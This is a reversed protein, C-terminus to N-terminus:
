LGGLMPFLSKSLFLAILLLVSYLITSTLLTKGMLVNRTTDDFGNRIGNLFYTLIMVVEIMYIGVILQFITPSMVEGINILGLSDNFKMTGGHIFTGGVNFSEEVKVLFESLKQLMEIIFTAMSAVIACMFPAIFVAQLQIASSIDELIKKMMSEINKTKSLFNSISRTASSLIESSKKSASIIIKMIDNILKSPFRRIAGYKRDFVAGELTMGLNKMNRLLDVFFGYMPSSDMKSQKYKQAVEELATEVPIGSSLVDSLNFLGVQFEDELMKIENRIKLRQYSMGFFYIILSSSIGLIISLSFFSSKFLHSPEYQESLYAKWSDEFTFPNQKMGIYKSALDFLHIMGPISVYFLVILSILLVPALIKKGFITIKYKGEPPLEPHQSINPFSFAGPRKSITRKLYFYLISPLIVIYGLGVVYPNFQDSLFISIMPFMVLGMLPFTIGMSHIMTMPSRLNRSYESMKEYTSTLIYSLAKDLSKKRLDETGIRTMSLLLNMSEIFEKDWALWKEMKTGIAQKISLFQGTEVGWLLEKFDKGIPGHCHEAAFSFAGELQPNFRLYIVMYLIIKITEDSAKIKTVDANYKPYTYIFYAGIFPILITFVKLSGPFFFTPIILIFLSIFTLITLSFVGNPTINLDTSFIHEKFKKQMGEPAKIKLKRESFNCLREFKPRKPKESKNPSYNRAKKEIENVDLKKKKFILM